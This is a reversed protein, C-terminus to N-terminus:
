RIRCRMIHGGRFFTRKQETMSGRLSAKVRNIAAQSVRRLPPDKAKAVEKAKAEKSEKAAGNSFEKVKALDKAEKRAVKEKVEVVVM